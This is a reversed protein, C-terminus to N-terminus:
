LQTGLTLWVLWSPAGLGATAERSGAQTLALPAGYGGGVHLWLDDVLPLPAGINYGVLNLGVALHSGVSVQPSLLAVNEHPHLLEVYLSGAFFLQPTPVGAGGSFGLGLHPSWLKPKAADIRTVEVHELAVDRLQGDCASQVFLLFSSDRRGQAARLKFALECAEATLIGSDMQIWAVPTDNDWRVLEEFDPPQGPVEVRVTEGPAFKTDVVTVTEVQRVRSKLRTVLEALVAAESTKEDLQGTTDRLLEELEGVQRNKTVLTNEHASAARELEAELRDELEASLQREKCESGALFAIAGVLLAPLIRWAWETRM